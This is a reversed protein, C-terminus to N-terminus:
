AAPVETSVTAMTSVSTTGLQGAGTRAMGGAENLQKNLWAIVLNYDFFLGSLNDTAHSLTKDM